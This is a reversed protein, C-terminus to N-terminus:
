SGSGGLLRASLETVEAGWAEDPTKFRQGMAVLTAAAETIPMKLDPLQELVRRLQIAVALAERLREDM